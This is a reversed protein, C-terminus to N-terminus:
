FLAFESPLKGEDVLQNIYKHVALRIFANRNTGIKNAADQLLQKEKEKIRFTLPNTRPM